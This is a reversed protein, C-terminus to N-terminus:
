KSRKNRQTNVNPYRRNKEQRCEGFGRCVVCVCVVCMNAFVSQFHNIKLRIYLCYISRFEFHINPITFTTIIIIFAYITFRHTSRRGDVTVHSQFYFEFSTYLFLIHKLQFDETLRFFQTLQKTNTKKNNRLWLRFQLLPVLSFFLLFLLCRTNTLKLKTENNGKNGYGNQTQKRQPLQQAVILEKM